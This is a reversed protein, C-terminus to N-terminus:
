PIIYWLLKQCTIVGCPTFAIPKDTTMQWQRDDTTPLIIAMDRSRYADSRCTLVIFGDFDAFFQSWYAEMGKAHGVHVCPDCITFKQQGHRDVMGVAPWTSEAWACLQGLMRLYLNDVFVYMYILATGTARLYICICICCAPYALARSLELNQPVLGLSSKNSNPCM